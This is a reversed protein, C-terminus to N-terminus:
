LAAPIPGDERHGWGNLVPRPGPLSHLALGPSLGLGVEQHGWGWQGGLSKVLECNHFSKTGRSRLQIQPRGNIRTIKTVKFVEYPPVLVEDLSPSFSVKKIPVGYCTKVEFFTDNGFIKTPAKQRSTSTFHGFRVKTGIKATFHIGRVGRYVHYCKKPGSRRLAQVAQTLFFHLMKFHYSKIYHQHSRRGQRTAANFQKYMGGAASYALVAIAQERTLHPCTSPHSCLQQWKASAKMWIAAFLKNKAIEMRGVKPLVAKMKNECGKYQDDFSQPAMDMRVTTPGLDGQCMASSTASMSLLTGALLVWCLALLEM